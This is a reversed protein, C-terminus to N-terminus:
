RTMVSIRTRIIRIRNGCMSQHFWIIFTFPNNDVTVSIIVSNRVDIDVTVSVTIRIQVNVCVKYKGVTESITIKAKENTVALSGDKILEEAGGIIKYVKYTIEKTGSVKLNDKSDDTTIEFATGPKFFIGGTLKNIINQLTNNTDKAKIGKVKPATKDIKIIEQKQPHNTDNLAQHRFCYRICLRISM